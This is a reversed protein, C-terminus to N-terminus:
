CMSILFFYLFNHPFNVESFQCCKKSFIGEQSKPIGSNSHIAIGRDNHIKGGLLYPSTRGGSVQLHLRIKSSQDSCIYNILIAWLPAPYVRLGVSRFLPLFAYPIPLDCASQGLNSIQELWPFGLVITEVLVSYLCPLNRGWATGSLM